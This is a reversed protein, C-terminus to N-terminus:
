DWGDDMADGGGTRETVGHGLAANEKKSLVLSVRANTLDVQPKDKYVSVRFDGTAWVRCGSPFNAVAYEAAKGFLVVNVWTTITDWGGGSGRKVENVAVSVRTYGTGSKSTLMEPAKGVRGTITMQMLDAM